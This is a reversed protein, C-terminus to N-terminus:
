RDALCERLLGKRYRGPVKDLALTRGDRVWHLGRIRGGQPADYHGHADLVAWTGDRFSILECLENGSRTDVLRIAGDLDAIYIRRGDPAFVPLASPVLERLGVTWNAEGTSTARLSFVPEEITFREDDFDLRDLTFM